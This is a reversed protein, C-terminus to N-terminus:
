QVHATHSSLLHLNPVCNKDTQALRSYLVAAPAHEPRALVRPQSAAPPPARRLAGGPALLKATTSAVCRPASIVYLYATSIDLIDLM